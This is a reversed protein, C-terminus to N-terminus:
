TTEQRLRIPRRMWDPVNILFDPRYIFTETASRSNWSRTFSCHDDFDRYLGIGSWGVFTGEGIFKKDPLRRNNAGCTQSGVAGLLGAPNRNVVIRGNAFFVGQITGRESNNCSGLNLCRNETTLGRPTGNDDWCPPGTTDFLLHSEESIDSIDLLRKNQRGVTPQIIVDGRVIFGLYSGEEVRIRVANDHLYNDIIEYNSVVMDESGIVLNGYVFITYKRNNTVYLDVGTPIYLNGDRVCAITNGSNGSGGCGVNAATGAGAALQVLETLQNNLLHNLTGRNATPLLSLFYDYDERPGHM